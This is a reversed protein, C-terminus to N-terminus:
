FRHIVGALISRPKGPRAGFPRYSVIYSKDLINDMRLYINGKKTYNYHFAGDLVTHGDIIKRGEEVSQDFMMGQYNFSIDLGWPNRHVGFSLGIQGEPIYPLPDGKKILEERVGSGWEPNSTLSNERFRAVTATYNIRVPLIFKGSRFSHHVTSEVGYVIARGGNFEQDLNDSSCGSSFSCVGKINQYDNVFGITEWNFYGNYRFGLEYNISEEPRINAADGPGPLIVGRGVGTLIGLNEHAKWYLGLGPVVQMDSKDIQTIGQEERTSNVTEFRSGVTLKWKGQAFSVEDEVYFTNAWSTDQNITSDETPLLTKELLGNNMSYFDQTHNRNVRDQHSRYGFRLNHSVTDGNFFYDGDIFIGQGFYERDNHGMVLLDSKDEAINNIEGKLLGM